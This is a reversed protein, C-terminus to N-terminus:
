DISDIKVNPPLPRNPHSGLLDYARQHTRETIWHHYTRSHEMQSHGMQAAALSIDLGFELSRVAWCHRLTYPSFPIKYRKFAATVKCGYDSHTEGQCNPLKMVRLDFEDLWEPYLAWVRRDGRSKGELVWCIGAERLNQEDVFFAEHNRLGFTAMMGYVWQWSPNPIQYFWYAITRDDPLDRPQVSQPSYNGTIAKVDFEIKAFKALATLALCFKKRTRTNPQTLAKIQETLLKATIPKEPPLRRFVAEYNTKWTTLVKPSSGRREFYDAKFAKVWDALTQPSAKPIFYPEWSFQKTALLGAIHKAEREAQELGERSARLNLAIRQQHPALNSCEPKAPFIGRLCLFDGRRELVVGLKAAKLRQNITALLRDSRANFNGM